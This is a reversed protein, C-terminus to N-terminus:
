LEIQVDEHFDESCDEFVKLIMIGCDLTLLWM